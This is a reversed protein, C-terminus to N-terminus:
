LALYSYKSIGGQSVGAFERAVDMNDGDEKSERHFSRWMEEDVLSASEMGEEEGM